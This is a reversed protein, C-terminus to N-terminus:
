FTADYMETLLLKVQGHQCLCSPEVLCLVRKPSCYGLCKWINVKKNHLEPYSMRFGLTRQYFAPRLTYWHVVGGDWLMYFCGFRKGSVIRWRSFISRLVVLLLQKWFYLFLRRKPKILFPNGSFCTSADKISWHVTSMSRCCPLALHRGQWLQPNLSRRTASGWNAPDFGQM